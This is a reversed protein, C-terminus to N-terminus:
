LSHILACTLKATQYILVAQNHSISVNSYYDANVRWTKMMKLYGSVQRENPDGSIGVALKNAVHIHINRKPAKVGKTALYDAALNFAAYYARSIASRDYASQISSRSHGRILEESLRLNDEWDFAM